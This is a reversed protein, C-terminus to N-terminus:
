EIFYPKGWFILGILALVIILNYWFTTSRLIKECFGKEKVEKLSAVERILRILMAIWNGVVLGLILIVLILRYLSTVHINNFVSTSYTIGSMFAMVVAAFIGLITVYEKKSSDLKETLGMTKEALEEAKKNFGETRQTLKENKETLEATKKSLEKETEQVKNSYNEFDVKSQNSLQCIEDKAADIEKSFKNEMELLKDTNKKELNSSVHRLYNIRAHDLSIHDYLKLLGRCFCVDESCPNEQDSQHYMLLIKINESLIEIDKDNSRDMEIMCQYIISYLHRFREGQHIQYLQKFFQTCKKIDDVSSFESVSLEELLEVLHKHKARDEARVCSNFISEDAM